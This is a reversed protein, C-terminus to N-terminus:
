PRSKKLVLWILPLAVLVLNLADPEPVQTPPPGVIPPPVGGGGGGGPYIPVFPPPIPIPISGGPLVPPVFPFTPPIVLPTDLTVPTPEPDSRPFSPTDAIRNGCRTRSLNTGDTIATEGKHLILKRSTWFIGSGRRYSVYVARDQKLRIVHAKALNFGHYHAKVLPDRAIAERLEAVTKVGGPVVSYPYTRQLNVLPRALYASFMSSPASFRTSPPVHGSAVSDERHQERVQHVFYVISCALIPLAVIALQRILSKTGRKGFTRHGRGM